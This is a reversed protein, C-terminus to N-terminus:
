CIFPTIPATSNTSSRHQKRSFQSPSLSKKQCMYMRWAADKTEAERPSRIWNEKFMPQLEPNIAFYNVPVVILDNSGTSCVISAHKCHQEKWFTSRRHSPDDNIPVRGAVAVGSSKKQRQRDRERERDWTSSTKGDTLSLRAIVNAIPPLTPQTVSMWNSFFSSSSSANPHMYMCFRMSTSCAVLTLDRAQSNKFLASAIDSCLLAFGM